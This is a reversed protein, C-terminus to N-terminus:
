EEKAEEKKGAVFPSIFKYVLHIERDSGVEIREVLQLVLKEDFARQNLYKKLDKVVDRFEQMRSETEKKERRISELSEKCQEYAKAYGALIEHYEDVTLIGDAYDLYLKRRKQALDNVKANAQLFRGNIEALSGSINADNQLIEMVKEHDCLAELYLHIQDMVIMQLLSVTIQHGLCPKDLDRGKCIYYCVKNEDDGRHPLRDFTMHEGCDACYVIGSLEDKFKENIIKRIERRELYQAKNEQLKVQLREFDDRSIIAPHTHPTIIWEEKSLVSKQQGAFYAQNTKNSVTDGVYTQNELIIRVASHHWVREKEEKIIGLQHLRGRPSPAGLLNLRDAIEKKPVDMQAWMFIMQVYLATEPDIENRKTEPNRIYGYPASNGVAYGDKKKKQLSSWVKRSIDKAYLENVLNKLPMALGEVDSKRSSDFNDTVAILRVGLFPFVKEIYYCSEIMNRGFRSLDKVVICSVKKQRVADILKHFAPRNFNTGSYGNDFYTEVCALEDQRNIYDHILAIQNDMSQGGAEEESSLRGYAATPIKEVIESAPLTERIPKTGAAQNKRSKRAM